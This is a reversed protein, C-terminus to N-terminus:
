PHFAKIDEVWRRVLAPGDVGYAFTCNPERGWLGHFDATTRGPTLGGTEIDMAVERVKFWGPNVLYATTTLDNLGIGTKGRGAEEDAAMRAVVEGKENKIIKVAKDRRFEMMRVLFDAVATGAQGIEDLDEWRQTVQDCADLGVQVVPIGANYVISAAHPDAAVNFSAGPSTNGPVGVAGGMFVIEKVHNKFDHDLLVALAVNTIPALALITIPEPSEKAIRVMEVPAYGPTVPTQPLPFGVDGLGDEGHIWSADQAPIMIPKWAGKYVPIDIRKSVELTRLANIACKDLGVNGSAITLAKVDFKGCSLAWLISAADDDGPDTDIILPIKKITDM